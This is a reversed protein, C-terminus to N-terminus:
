HLKQQNGLRTLNYKQLINRINTVLTVGQLIYFPCSFLFHGTDEIDQNCCCIDSLTDNFNHCMKHCRLPSFSVRLQFLYLLGIHDHIGFISQSMPRYSYEYTKKLIDFSSVKDFHKIFINWSAIADLFFSNM